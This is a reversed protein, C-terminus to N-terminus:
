HAIRHTNRHSQFCLGLHCIVDSLHVGMHAKHRQQQYTFASHLLKNYSDGTEVPKM